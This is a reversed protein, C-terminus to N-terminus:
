KTEPAKAKWDREERIKMLKAHQSKNDKGGYRAMLVELPKPSLLKELAQASQPPRIWPYKKIVDEPLKRAAVNSIAATRSCDSNHQEKFVEHNYYAFELIMEKTQRKKGERPRPLKQVVWAMFWQLAMAEDNSLLYGSTGNPLTCSHYHLVNMLAHLKQGLKIYREQNWGNVPENSFGSLDFDPMPEWEANPDPESRILLGASPTLFVGRIRFGARPRPANPRSSDIEIANLTDGDPGMVTGTVKYDVGEELPKLTRAAKRSPKRSKM